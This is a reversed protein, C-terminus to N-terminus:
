GKKRRFDLEKQISALGPPMRGTLRVVDQEELTTDRSRFIFPKILYGDVSPVKEALGVGELVRCLGYVSSDHGEDKLEGDVYIGCWDGSDTEEVLVVHKLAKM